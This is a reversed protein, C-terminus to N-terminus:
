GVFLDKVYPREPRPGIPCTSFDGRPALPKHTEGVGWVGFSPRACQVKDGAFLRKCVVPRGEPLPWEQGVSVPAANLLHRQRNAPARSVPASHCCHAEFFLADLLATPTRQPHPTRQPVTAHQQPTALKLSARGTSAVPFRKRMQMGGTRAPPTSCSTQVKM